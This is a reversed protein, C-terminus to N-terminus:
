GCGAHKRRQSQLKEISVSSKFATEIGTVMSSWDFHALGVRTLIPSVSDDIKGKKNPQLHHGSLEVL